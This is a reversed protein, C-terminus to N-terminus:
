RRLMVGAPEAEQREGGGRQGKFEITVYGGGQGAGERAVRVAQVHGGAAREVPDELIGGEFSIHLLNRDMSYPKKAPRSTPIGHKKAYEIM